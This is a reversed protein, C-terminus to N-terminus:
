FKGQSWMGFYKDCEDNTFNCQEELIDKTAERVWPNVTDILHRIANVVLADNSESLKVGYSEIFYISSDFPVNRTWEEGEDEEVWDSVYDAIAIVLEQERTIAPLCTHPTYGLGAATKPDANSYLNCTVTTGDALRVRSDPAGTSWYPQMPSNYILDMGSANDRVKIVSRGCESCSYSVIEDPKIVKSM